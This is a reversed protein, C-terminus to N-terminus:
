DDGDGQAVLEKDIKAIVDRLQETLKEDGASFGGRTELELWDDLARRFGARSARLYAVQDATVTSDIAADLDIEALKFTAIALDRLARVDQPDAGLIAQSLKLARELADRAGTHDGEARLIKAVHELSTAVDRRIVASTPARALLGERLALSKRYKELAAGREGNARDVNGLKNLIVSLPGFVRHAPLRGELAEFMALAERFLTLKREPDEACEALNSLSLALQHRAELDHPHEAVVVQMLASAREYETAASAVEGEQWKMDGLGNRAWAVYVRARVSGPDLAQAEEAAALSRQYSQRAGEVDGLNANGANGQADGLRHWAEALDLLLDPRESADRALGELYKKSEEVLLM